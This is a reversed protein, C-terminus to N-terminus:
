KPPGMIQSPQTVVPDFAAPQHVGLWAEIGCILREIEARMSATYSQRQEGYPARKLLKEGL